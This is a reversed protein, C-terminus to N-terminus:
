TQKRGMESVVSKAERRLHIEHWRVARANCAVSSADVINYAYCGVALFSQPETDAFPCCGQIVQCIEASPGFGFPIGSLIGTSGIHGLKMLLKRATVLSQDLM